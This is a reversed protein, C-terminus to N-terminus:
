VIEVVQALNLVHAAKILATSTKINTLINNAKVLVQSAGIADGKWQVIEKALADVGNTLDYIAQEV